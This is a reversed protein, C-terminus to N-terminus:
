QDKVAEQAALFQQMLVNGEDMMKLGKDGLAKKNGLYVMIAIWLLVGLILAVWQWTM